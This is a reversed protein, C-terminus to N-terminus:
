VYLQFSIVAFHPSLYLYLRYICVWVVLPWMPRLSFLLKVVAFNQLFSFFLAISDPSLAFLFICASLFLLVISINLTYSYHSHLLRVQSSGTERQNARTEMSVCPLGGSSKFFFVVVVLYHHLSIILCYKSHRASVNAFVGGIKREWGDRRMRRTLDDCRKKTEVFIITKNEKEAMIEEM